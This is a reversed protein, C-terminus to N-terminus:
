ATFTHVSHVGPATEEGITLGSVLFSETSTSYVGATTGDLMAGESILNFAGPVYHANRIPGWDGVVEARKTSSSDFSQINLTSRRTNRLNLIDGTISISAGSDMYATAKRNYIQNLHPIPASLVPTAPEAQTSYKERLAM